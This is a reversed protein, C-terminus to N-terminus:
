SIKKLFNSKHLTFSFKAGLGEQSNVWINGGHRQIIEKAISLGLGTGDKEVKRANTARFFEDFVKDLEDEPIGIGTDIVEMLVYNDHDKANIEVTGKAPTYKIANLLLNTIIEEISFQSGFIRDVSPEINCNLTISRNEVKTKVTALANDITNKLPFSEMVLKNSLRMQTLKLLATVFNTLKKTRDHARNIFDAQSENLAGALKNVVVGLCGQIAALHGKIDHTIRSVYEDKIRDKQKLQINAQRYAEQQRRLQTSISNTMYVVFYLTTVFILITIVIYFGDQHLDHTIFGRLCYHPLIESYELFVMLAVLAAALTAYLYSEVVSLIISAIIMHFIFYIIFPNEIGGSYHLLVTLTLLDASIQFNIIKKASISINGADARLTRNLLLWSVTNYLTLVAAICYLPVVQLSVDLLNSAFVTALSLGVIAIWRLKILWYAREILRTDQPVQEM